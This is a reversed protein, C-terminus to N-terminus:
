RVSLDTLGDTRHTSSFRDLFDDYIIAKRCRCLSLAMQVARWDSYRHSLLSAQLIPM